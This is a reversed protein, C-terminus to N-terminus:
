LDNNQDKNKPSVLKFLSYFIIFLALFVGTLTFIPFTHQLYKDLWDGGLSLGVFAGIWQFAIASYKAYKNYSPKNTQQPKLVKQQQSSM